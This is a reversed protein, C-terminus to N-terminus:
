RGAKPVFPDDFGNLTAVFTNGIDLGGAELTSGTLSLDVAGDAPVDDPLRDGM